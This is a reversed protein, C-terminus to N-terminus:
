VIRMLLANQLIRDHRCCLIALLATRQLRDKNHYLIRQLYKRSFFSILLYTFDPSFNVAVTQHTNASVINAIFVHFSLCFDQRLIWNLNPKQTHNYLSHITSATTRSPILDASHSSIQYIIWM